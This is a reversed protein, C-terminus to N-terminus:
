VRVKWYITNGDKSLVPDNKNEKLFELFEKPDLVNEKEIYITATRM